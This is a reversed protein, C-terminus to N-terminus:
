EGNGEGSGSGGGYYDVPDGQLAPSSSSVAAPIPAIFADASINIPDYQAGDAVHDVILYIDLNNENSADINPYKNYDPVYMAARNIGTGYGGNIFRLAAEDGARYRYRQTDFWTQSEFAFERRREKLLEEYTLSSAESVGARQRVMNYYKMALGDSTESATGMKAEVYTLYVDALRMLYINNAADQNIGVNGDCDAGKGIIYKKIHALMENKDELVDGNDRSVYQYTYGGGARNLMPYYDGNTMYTWMRRRDNREYMKQLSITPGKGAGWTQDAIVSSRSWATNRANGYSYGLVGCQIALISEPGNNSEVDFLTAFDIDTLAQTNEIVDLADAAAKAYLADRDYGYDTHAAMTVALKARLARAKRKNLRYPDGTNEPLLEVAADLDEMAFRYVSAQTNRPVDLIGASIMESNNEIVPVDHWVEALMYHCYGRFARAEGIAQDKDAQTITGNCVPIIDHIISNADLIVNYLGKWGENLYPNVATYTGFYWQGEDGYTYFMDGNIMDMKWQFNMHFNSWTKSAYLAMTTSRLAEPTNYFTELVPKDAPDITLFDNCSVLSSGILLAAASTKIINKM